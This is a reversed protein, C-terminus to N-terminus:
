KSEVKEWIKILVHILAGNGALYAAELGAQYLAKSKLLSVGLDDSPAYAHTASLEWFANGISWAFFIVALGYFIKPIRYLMPSM